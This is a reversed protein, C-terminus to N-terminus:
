WARRGGHIEPFEGQSHLNSSLGIYHAGGSPHGVQGRDPRPLHFDTGPIAVYGLDMGYAPTSATDANQGYALTFPGTAWFHTQTLDGDPDTIYQTQLRDLTYTQDPTGDNNLDVFVRTNDQAVTLFVGNDTRGATPPNSDQAWGLFHEDYLMTSPLLSFGWEYLDQTSDGVGVGWFVDSGKFYLGSDEPVSGGTAARFSVTANAGVTFSGSGTRSAWNITISSSNPNYLFYDTIRANSPEDLPAYYDKTWFGRPFASFGRAMYMWAVDGAVYKVQLTSNGHILTGTNLNGNGPYTTCTVGSSCASIRDLLFTQGRQLTVTDTDGPDTKDADRNQNLTDYIGDGNLDVQFTTNDETAQILVFVRAFDTFGLNEGFPLIYTTLQPKVPYIEWAVAQNGVGRAEIWSSRTVTVAGGAVYIRDGGDYFTGTGRPTTPINSSEFNRLDGASALTYTEDATAAPNLPDFTLGNEWHDYYITTNDSWGTVSILCHMTTTGSADLTNLITWMSLEDGPIYYDSYGAATDAHSYNSCALLVILGIFLTYFVTKSKMFTNTPM